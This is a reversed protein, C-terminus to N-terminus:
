RRSRLHGRMKSEGSWPSEQETRREAKHVQRVKLKRELRM